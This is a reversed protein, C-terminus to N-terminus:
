EGPIIFVMMDTENRRSYYHKSAMDAVHMVLEHCKVRMVLKTLSLTFRRFPFSFQENVDQVASEMPATGSAPSSQSENAADTVSPVAIFAVIEIHRLESCVTMSSCVGTLFLAVGLGTMVLLGAYSMSDFM